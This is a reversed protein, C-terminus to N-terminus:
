AFLVVDSLPPIAKFDEKKKSKLVTAVGLGSEQKKLM